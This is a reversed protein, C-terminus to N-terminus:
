FLANYKGNKSKSLTLNLVNQRKFSKIIAMIASLIIQDETQM